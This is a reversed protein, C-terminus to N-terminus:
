GTQRWALLRLRKWHCMLWAFVAAPLLGAERMDEGALTARLPEPLM